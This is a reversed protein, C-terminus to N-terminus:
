ANSRSSRALSRVRSDTVEAGMIPLGELAEETAMPGRLAPDPTWNAVDCLDGARIADGECLAIAVHAVVAFGIRPDRDPRADLAAAIQRALEVAAERAPADDEPLPKAWLTLNGGQLAPTYGAAALQSEAIPLLNDLDTLIADDAEALVDCDARVEVLIGVAPRPDLSSEGHEALAARLAGVFAVPDAIRQTRDIAMARMIVDDVDTPLPAFASARPRRAHAHLYQVITPSEDEFPLRGTLLHFALVGMGYVDTRADVIGGAIQEPAMTVPTGVAQRSTTLDTVDPAVLKAIGFDLLVVRDGALFVNSAKVDRHIVSQAHAAALAAAVSTLIEVVRAPALRSERALVRALDTGDLLEMALYPRGDAVTGWALLEVVSPHRVRVMVEAERLFRAVAGPANCLDGRLVKVAAVRGTGVHRARYVAGFGGEAIPALLEFDGARTGSAFAAEGTM